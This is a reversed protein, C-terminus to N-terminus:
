KWVALHILPLRPNIHRNEDRQALDHRDIHKVKRRDSWQTQRSAYDSEASIFEEVFSLQFSGINKHIPQQPHARGGPMTQLHNASNSAFFPLIGCPALLTQLAEFRRAESVQLAPFAFTLAM